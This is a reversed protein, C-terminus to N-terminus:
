QDPQETKLYDHVIRISKKVEEETFTPEIEHEKMRQYLHFIILGIRKKPLLLGFEQHVENYLNFVSM